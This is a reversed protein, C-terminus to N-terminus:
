DKFPVPSKRFFTIWLLFVNKFAPKSSWPLFMVFTPLRRNNLAVGLGCGTLFHLGWRRLQVVQLLQSSSELSWIIICGLWCRSKLWHCGSSLVWNHRQSGESRYFSTLYYIQPTKVRETRPSKNCPEEKDSNGRAIIAQNSRKWVFKKSDTECNWFLLILPICQQILKPVISM